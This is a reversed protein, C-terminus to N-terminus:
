EAIDFEFLDTIQVALADAIVQLTGIETRPSIERVKKSALSHVGPYSLNTLRQLDSISLDAEKLLMPIKNKFM